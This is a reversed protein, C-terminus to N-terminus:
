LSSWVLYAIPGFFAVPFLYRAVKDIAHAHTLKGAHFYYNEVVVQILSLFIVAYSVIFFKDATVLYGVDPLSDAQTIHFAVCSLLATIVIGAQVEFEKPHIFFVVFSMMVIIVLPGLFKILYPVLVRRIEFSLTFRSWRRQPKGEGSPTGFDTPYSFSATKQHVAVIAWDAVRRTAISRELDTGDGQDPRDVVFQFTSEDDTPHAIALQVQQTDFPYRFLEFRGRMTATFEYSHYTWGGYHEVTTREKRTLEGNLLKFPIEDTRIRGRWRFWVVGQMDYTQTRIDFNFIDEIYFGTRVKIPLAVADREYFFRVAGRHLTFPIDPAEDPSFGSLEVGAAAVIVERKKEMVQLIEYVANASLSKRACLVADVAMAHVETELGQYDAPFIESLRLAGREDLEAVQEEDVSLLKARGGSLAAQVFSSPVTSVIFAADLKGAQLQKVSEEISIQSVTLDDPRLAHADLVTLATANTGSGEPGLSVRKGKLEAFRTIGADARVLIHLTEEYLTTLARVQDAPTAFAGEGRTAQSLIDSQALGLQVQGAQIARVNWVSGESPTASVELISANRTVSDALSRGVRDYAGGAPGTGLSLGLALAVPGSALVLAAAAAARGAAGGRAACRARVLRTHCAASQQHPKVAFRVKPM